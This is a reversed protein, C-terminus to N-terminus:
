WVSRDSVIEMISLRNDVASIAFDNFRSWRVMLNNSTAPLSPRFVSSRDCIHLKRFTIIIFGFEVFKKSAAPARFRMRIIQQLARFVKPFTIGGTFCGVKILTWFSLRASRAQFYKFHLTVFTIKVSSDQAIGEITWIIPRWTLAEFVWIRCKTVAPYPTQPTMNQAPVISLTEIVGVFYFINYYFDIRLGITVLMSFSYELRQILM